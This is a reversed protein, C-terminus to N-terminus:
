ETEGIRPGVWGDLPIRRAGSEQENCVCTECADSDHNGCVLCAACKYGLRSATEENAVIDDVHGSGGCMPCNLHSWDREASDAFHPEDKLTDLLEVIREAM